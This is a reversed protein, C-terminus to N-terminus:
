SVKTNIEVNSKLTAMNVCSHEAAGVLRQIIKPNTGEAAAIDVSCNITQFGVPVERDIILTGRVDLDATVEVELSLLKVGLRNAIIRITSDLCGAIAGCLMDGPNPADHYGGVAHHIGYDMSVSHDENGFVVTGHFPDTDVGRITKARDTIRAKGADKLYIERLSEQRGKVSESTNNRM